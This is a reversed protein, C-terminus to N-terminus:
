EAAAAVEETAVVPTAVIAAPAASAQAIRRQNRPVLALLAKTSLASLAIGLLAALFLAIAISM